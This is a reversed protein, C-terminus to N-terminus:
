FNFESPDIKAFEEDSLAFMNAAKDLTKNGKVKQRPAAAAKKALKTDKAPVVTAAPTTVAAQNPVPKLGGLKGEARLRQEVASYAQISNGLQRGLMTDKVMEAVILDYDGSAKQNNLVRLLDPKQALINQSEADWTTTVHTLVDKFGPFASLEQVTDELTIAEETPAVHQPAYGEAQATDFEMLDIQSDQVLKAIAKPDKKHLDILYGLTAEDVLNEKELMKLIRRSPKLAAMKEHYNAGMQMLRVVDEPNQIIIDRGNAKFPKGLIADHFAKYDPVSQSEPDSPKDADPKDAEPEGEAEPEPKDDGETEEAPEPNEEDAEGPQDSEVEEEPEPKAEPKPEPQNDEATMFQSIDLRSLEDESMGLVDPLDLQETDKAM